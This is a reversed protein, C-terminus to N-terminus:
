IKNILDKAIDVLSETMKVFIPTPFNESPRTELSFVGKYDIDRLSKSFNDWDTSGMYPFLHLDIAWMNDSIHFAVIEKGLRRIEDGVSLDAFVNCHGTDFCIKFHDDNMTKVFKLIQEPTSISFDLFPMNELCITVDLEKAYKLLEGMFEINADWTEQEKGAPIDEVGYPMIPHVVWHKCGLVSTAWISEKMKDMREQRDAPELDRIPWRWPGHTQTIEVDAEEALRKVNLLYAEKDETTPLTYPVNETNGMSFDVADFGFAKIKKFMEDGWRSYSGDYMNAYMGIKMIFDEVKRNQKRM